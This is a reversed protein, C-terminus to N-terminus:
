DKGAKSQEFISFILDLDASDSNKSQMGSYSGDAAVLNFGNYAASAEAFRYETGWLQMTFVPEYEAYEAPTWAGNHLLCYLSVTDASSLEMRQTGVNLVGPAPVRELLLALRMMVTAAEGRTATSRPRFCGDGYGRFLGRYVMLEMDAVAYASSDDRDTFSQEVHYEESLFPAQILRAYRSIM